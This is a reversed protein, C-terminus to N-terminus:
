LFQPKVRHSQRAMGFGDELRRSAREIGALFEAQHVTAMNPQSWEVSPQMQLYAVAGNTIVEFYDDAIFDPCDLSTQRPKLSVFPKIVDLTPRDEDIVIWSPHEYHYFHQECRNAAYAKRGVLSWVHCITSENPLGSLQYRDDGDTLQIDAHEFVWARSKDCFEIVCSKVAVIIAARPCESLHIAVADVWDTYAAM